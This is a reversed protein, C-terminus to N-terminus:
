KAANGWLPEILEAEWAAIRKSLAEVVEPHAAALNETEPLDRELDYLEPFGDERNRLLLKWGGLRVSVPGRSGKTRWFFPREPLTTVAGTLLEGLDIGDLKWEERVEGRAASVFTPLLDLAFAPQDVVSGAEVRGDWRIACPVRTGGEWLTGKRGRLPTNDAGTQTQGGNDNTFVILTNEEIGADRLADLVLGVNDDLAKVLAAYQRRKKGEIGAISELALDEPKGHLPGHPATFSLYLFFPQEANEEIFRVAAAGLRDTVYGEEATPMGNEQLVRHATPKEMPFYSRSGQLLGYFQDFGREHPHYAAPYGLHWKGICATRYGLERLHDALTTEALSMGGKLFGPPINTEHGFRQQYRGSLLGARSPSCVAGSMYFSSFRVGAAAISDIHPTLGRLDPRADPQFGFDAFGADDSYLLVINPLRRAVETSPSSETTAACSALLLPLSLLSLLSSFRSM